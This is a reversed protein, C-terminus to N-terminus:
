RDAGQAAALVAAANNSLREALQRVMKVAEPVAAAVAPSLGMRGEAEAGFDAPECGLIYIAASVQGLSRATALVRAPYMGHPDVATDGVTATMEGPQLLYLTGPAGGRAVADVLVVAKWPCLLAYALDLGRIGFDRVRVGPPMEVGALAQAVEFGFGDDGLFINGICAVLLDGNM